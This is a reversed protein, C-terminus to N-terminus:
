SGLKATLAEIERNLEERKEGPTKLADLRARASQLKNLMEDRIQSKIAGSLIDLADSLWAPISAGFSSYTHMLGTANFHLAILEETTRSQIKLNKLENIMM